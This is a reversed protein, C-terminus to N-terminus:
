GITLIGDANFRLRFRGATVSKNSGFDYYMILEDASAAGGRSKYIVAGKATFSANEWFVNDADFVSKNIINNQTLVKNQLEKGGSVYGTGTIEHSIVDSLRTDDAADPVYTDAVLMAKITDDELNIRALGIEKKFSNYKVNM